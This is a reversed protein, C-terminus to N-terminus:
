LWLQGFVVVKVSYLWEARICGSQRFVVVKVWICGIKCSYLWKERIGGNGSYLWKPGFVLVKSWKEWICCNQGFFVVKSSYFWNQGFLVLNGSYLRKEGIVVM